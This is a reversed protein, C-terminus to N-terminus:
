NMMNSRTVRTGAHQKIDILHEDTDDMKEVQNSDNGNFVVGKMQGHMSTMMQQLSLLTTHIKNTETNNAKMEVQIVAFQIAVEHKMTTVLNEAKIIKDEISEKVREINGDREQQLAHAKNNSREQYEIMFQKISRIENNM